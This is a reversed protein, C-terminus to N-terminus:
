RMSSRASCAPGTIASTACSAPWRTPAHRAPARLLAVLSAQTGDGVDFLDGQGFVVELWAIAEQYRTGQALIRDDVLERLSGLAPNENSVRTLLLEELQVVRPEPEPGLGPSAAAYRDLLRDLDDRLSRRVDRMATGM